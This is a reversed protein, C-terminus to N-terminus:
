KATLSWGRRFRRDLLDNVREVTEPAHLIDVHGYDLPWRSDAQEVAEMRAQSSVTVTGDNSASSSGAMRYGFLMHFSTGEPLKRPLDDGDDRHFVWRLYDSDPSMDKFSEPLEIPASEANQAKVDGGWPTSISVFLQIDDRGTEGAYKLIAGRSVLGGMSHAVIAFEDFDHQIHLRELLTALHTALGDLAFGSPYFYFWPQFRERDLEAMLTSFERPYGSIGHVFVVPIRDPDFPEMFYIGALGDNLFDMIEWLGYPGAAPGFAEDDLDECIEGEVTWAWLSFSKQEEQSREILEFIDLPETIEPIVADKALVIDYTAVEGPGVELIPGDAVRVAREGPDLLGNGNRDEYAGVQYRGPAVPFAFTGPRVRVFTDVGKPREDETDSQSGLVVVLTGEAKGETDIRGDIRALQRRQEAQEKFGLVRGLGACGLPSAGALSVALTTV